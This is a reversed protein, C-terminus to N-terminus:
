PEYINVACSKHQRLRAAKRVSSHNVLAVYFEGTQPSDGYLGWFWHYVASISLRWLLMKVPPLLSANGGREGQTKFALCTEDSMM